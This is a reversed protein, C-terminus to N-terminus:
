IVRFFVDKPFWPLSQKETGNNQQKGAVRENFSLSGSSYALAAESLLVKEGVHCAPLSQLLVILSLTRMSSPGVTHLHASVECNVWKTGRERERDYSPGTYGWVESLCFCSMVDEAFHM